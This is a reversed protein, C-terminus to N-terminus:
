RRRTIATRFMVFEAVNETTLLGVVRGESLVPLVPCPCAQLRELAPGLMDRAEATEYTGAMAERVPSELGQAAVARVLRDRTLVGVLRGDEVVPFDHQQGAIV